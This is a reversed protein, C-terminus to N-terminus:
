RGAPAAAPAKANANAAAFDGATALVFADAKVHRRWAANVQEPTVAAIAADKRAEWAWDLGEELHFVMTGALSGDDSRGQQRGELLDHKARAVEDATAGSKTFADIEERVVALIRDRNQPAFSGEITVGADDGWWSAHLGAGIGYSLGEQRRVRTALRSEMTGGGFVHLAVSLAPYDADKENMPFSSTMTFQASTKDAAQVDFRASPIEDHKQIWREFAPAAPKKWDGFLREVAADLGDPIAGVAAVQARQASWYEDHFSRVDALTTAKTEAIAEAVSAQYDPDGFKAHRAANVHDHVADSLLAPLTLRSAEAQALQQAKMREFADAPFAPHRVLDAALALAELLTGQEARIWISGEQNGGAVQVEAKLRILEDQIQQKTRTTTGEAMLAGVLDTGRRPTTDKANGWQLNVVLSVANGRTRRPTEALAIGSPLRRVQTRAGLAQPTPVFREGDEVVPPKLHALREALPPAAPIAVREVATTPLYRGVTRNAPRFYAARVREVDALTVQDIDEMLQFLLRWDGNGLVNSLNQILGEPSKMQERYANTALARVRALDAETFTVASRGEVIDLLRQQVLDIDGDPPLVAYARVGGADHDGTGGLGAAVARKTEVLDKYLEGSPQLSLLLGYVVLAASDPHSASPVHWYAMVMPQGGVRRVVVSREGDQPPEITWPAPVPTAPKAVKAFEHAVLALTRQADFKGAVLLTANDPRYFRRYFAQLNAIPVNEIDSKPGITAHGYAHWSYAAAKVRQSLVQMPENEGREFENRVVTMEKDLDSKRIFSHTMRDAEMSLAWALTGPNANFSEFYNTRDTDTSGNWRAGRKAYEDPLDPHTPTGKFQLHELLHAMGYEGQSEHRSGVRYTVNVTTTSQSDDPLLLVQLGNALRYERIGGLERVFTVGRPPAQRAAAPAPAAVPASAASADPSTAVLACSLTAVVRLLRCRLRTPEAFSM